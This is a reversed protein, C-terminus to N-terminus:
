SVFIIGFLWGLGFRPEAATLGDPEDAGGGEEGRAPPRLGDPVPGPLFSPTTRLLDDAAAVM